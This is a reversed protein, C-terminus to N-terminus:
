EFDGNQNLRYFFCGKYNLGGLYLYQNDTKFGVYRINFNTGNVNTLNPNINTFIPKVFEINFTSGMKILKLSEGFKTDFYRVPLWLNLGLVIPDLVVKSGGYKNSSNDYDEIFTNYPLVKEELINFSKDMTLFCLDASKNLENYKEGLLVINNNIFSISHFTYSGNYTSLFNTKILKGTFDYCVIRNEPYGLDNSNFINHILIYINQDTV